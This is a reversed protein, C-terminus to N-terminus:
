ISILTLKFCLCAFGHQKAFVDFLTRLCGGFCIQGCTKSKLLIHWRCGQKKLYKRSNQIIGKEIVYWVNQLVFANRVGNMVSNQHLHKYEFFSLVNGFWYFWGMFCVNNIDPFLSNFNDTWLTQAYYRRFLMSLKYFPRRPDVWVISELDGM